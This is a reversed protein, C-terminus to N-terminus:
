NKGSIQRTFRNNWPQKSHWIITRCFLANTNVLTHRNAQRLRASVVLMNIKANDTNAKTLRLFGGIKSLPLTIDAKGINTVHAFIPLKRM